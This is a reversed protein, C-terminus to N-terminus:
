KVIAQKKGDSLRIDILDGTQLEEKSKDDAYAVCPSFVLRAALFVAFVAAIVVLRKKRSKQNSVVGQVACFTHKKM